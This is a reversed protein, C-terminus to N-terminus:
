PSDARPPTSQAQLLACVVFVNPNCPHSPEPNRDMARSRTYWGVYQQKYIIDSAKQDARTSNANTSSAATTTSPAESTAATAPRPRPTTVRKSIDGTFTDDPRSVGVSLLYQSNVICVHTLDSIKGKAMSQIIGRHQKSAGVRQMM